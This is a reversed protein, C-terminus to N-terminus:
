DEPIIGIVLEKNVLMFDNGELEEKGNILAIKVDTLAIFTQNKLFKNLADSVRMNAPITIKGKIIFENTLITAEIKRTNEGLPM